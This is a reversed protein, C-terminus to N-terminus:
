KSSNAKNIARYCIAKDQNYRAKLAELKVSYAVNYMAILKHCMTSHLKAYLDMQISAEKGLKSATDSISGDSNVFHVDDYSTGASNLKGVMKDYAKGLDEYSKVIDKCDKKAQKVLKDYNEFRRYAELAEAATITITDTTDTGDRFTEFCADHFENEDIKAGAKGKLIDGRKQDLVDDINEKMKEYQAKIEASSSNKKSSIDFASDLTTLPTTDPIDSDITFKYGEIDFEGDFDGIKSKNKKIYSDSKFLKMIFNIFKDFIKKIFEIAKHILKKVWSFFDDFSEQITYTNDAELLSRYLLKSHNLYEENMERMFDIADSTYSEYSVQELTKLPDNICVQQDLIASASVISSSIM